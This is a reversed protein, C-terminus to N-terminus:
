DGESEALKAYNWKYTPVICSGSSWSTTGSAWTCVYGAIFGSFHRHKWEESDSDRVLIPTDVPVKSWDVSPEVYESNAWEVFTERCGREHGSLDCEECKMGRCM